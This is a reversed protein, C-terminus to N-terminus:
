ASIAQIGAELARIDAGRVRKEALEKGDKLFVFTPMATVGYQQAVGRMKDVDVQIFRVDTYKESLEGIKPAVAKCPGCWTAYFDIVTPGSSTLAKFIVDNDINVVKGHSMIPESSSRRTQYLRIGVYLILFFIVTRLEM